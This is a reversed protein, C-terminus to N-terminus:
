RGKRESWWCSFMAIAYLMRGHDARGARHEALLRAVADTELYGAQAAGSDNWVAETFGGLGGKFWDALPMQFGQKRRRMVSPPLWDAVARRLVYKGTQGHLKMDLPLTLSWDVMLHSLFPVRAELSHAMSARDLRPLMASPLSVSLDALLFQELPDKAAPDFLPAYEREQEALGHPEEQERLFHPTYLRRRLAATSLQTGAFFQQYGDPLRAYEAARAGHQHVLGAVPGLARLLPRWRRVNRANRHRHYGAFLEDGGEGCLVVKVQEAALKSLYWTPIAADPAFPEDYCSQVIPLIEAAEDLAVPRVVHEVGLHRAVEAAAETEDIRAGPYGITFAKIPQESVRVMAATVASSDVGGSLFSAVPVDSLMHRKVTALLMARMREVWEAESVGQEVRLRPKWFCGTRAEGEPGLELWHGPELQRAQRYISRPRRVHGYSFFDHVAREDVDFDHDPLLTIAKLESAFSLGGKQESIYLPKIGLPDRGLTLRRERRDWLAATYMGELKPWAENGWTTLAALVTETDCHTDFRWGRAQLDPRLELHNYIEGNFVLAFRGDPTTMPQHGHVVDQISLRRMGFGLDGDVLLGGEDPGRHFIARCQAAIVSEPVPSGGRRYWGAIGCM